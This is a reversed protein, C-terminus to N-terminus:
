TGLQQSVLCCFGPFRRMKAHVCHRPGLLCASLAMLARTTDWCLLELSAPSLCCRSSTREPEKEGLPLWGFGQSPPSCRPTQVSVGLLVPEGGVCKQQMQWGAWNQQSISFNLHVGRWFDCLLCFSRRRGGTYLGKRDRLAGKDICIDRAILGLVPSSIFQCSIGLVFLNM